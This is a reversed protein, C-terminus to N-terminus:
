RSQGAQLFTRQSYTRRFSRVLRCGISHIRSALTVPIDVPLLSISGTGIELILQYLSAWRIWRIARGFDAHYLNPSGGNAGGFWYGEAVVLDGFRADQGVGQGKAWAPITNPIPSDVADM